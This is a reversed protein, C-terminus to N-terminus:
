SLLDGEIEMECFCNYSFKFGVSYDSVFEGDFDKVRDWICFVKNRIVNAVELFWSRKEKFGNNLRRYTRKVLVLVM